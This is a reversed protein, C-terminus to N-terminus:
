HRAAPPFETAIWETLEALWDPDTQMRAHIAMLLLGGFGVAVVGKPERLRLGEGPTHILSVDRNKRAM